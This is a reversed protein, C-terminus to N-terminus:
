VLLVLVMLDCHLRKINWKLSGQSSHQSQPCETRPPSTSFDRGQNPNKKYHCRTCKLKNRVYCGREYESEIATKLLVVGCSVHL